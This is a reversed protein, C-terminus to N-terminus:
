TKCRIARASSASSFPRSFALFAVLSTVDRSVLVPRDWLLRPVMAPLRGALAGMVAAVGL